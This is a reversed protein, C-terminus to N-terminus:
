QRAEALFISPEFVSDKKILKGAGHKKMFLFMTEASGYDISSGPIGRRWANRLALFEADSKSKMLKKLDNWASDESGM